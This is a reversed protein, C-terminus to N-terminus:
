GLLGQRGSGRSWAPEMGFQHQSWGLSTSATSQGMSWTLISLLILGPFWSCISIGPSIHHWSYRLGCQESGPHGLLWGWRHWVCPCWGMGPFTPQSLLLEPTNIALMDQAAAPAPPEPSTTTILNSCLPQLYLHLDPSLHFNFVLAFLLLHPLVPLCCPFCAALFPYWPTPSSWGTILLCPEPCVSIPFDNIGCKRWAICIHVSRHALCKAMAEWSLTHPVPHSNDLPLESTAHCMLDILICLM